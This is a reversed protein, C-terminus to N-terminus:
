FGGPPVTRRGSMVEEWAKQAMAVEAYQQVQDSILNQRDVDQLRCIFVVVHADLATPDATNLIWGTTSHDLLEAIEALFVNTRRIANEVNQPELGPLKGERIRCSEILSGGLPGALVDQAFTSKQSSM